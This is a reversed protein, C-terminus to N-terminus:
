PGTVSRYFRMPYNTADHDVFNFDSPPPTNTFIGTWTVLNTSAQIILPVGLTNTGSIDFGGSGGGVYAGLLQVPQTIIVIATTTASAVNDDPNGDPTTTNVIASNVIDGASAAQLVVAMTAGTGSLLTGVDWDLESASPSTSGQSVSSTVFGANFPLSDAVSVNSATSPGYNTVTINFTVDNGVAVLNTSVTMAIGADATQGIVNATVLTVLWGNSIAGNDAAETDVVFLSWKGNPDAGSLNSLTTGFPPSPPPIHTIPNITGALAIILNTGNPTGLGTCLDYNTAASFLTPSSAWENNGVTTDHFYTNYAPTAALAYLAPNIFGVAARGNAAAQQNVLALFGGWLPAACSTGVVQYFVGGDAVVFVQDAAMAVDPINRTTASGGVAVMNINSQWYPIGYFSSYGGSSGLGSGLNWVQEAAYSAGSGNMSLTTGGVQTINPSSSPSGPFGPNDVQGPLFADSDGSANFFTQGQLAMQVFIQETTGNPGGTWGWSCSIQRASNDNAIQNLVDNEHFNFPNGEYVVIQSLAPAMSVLMEIDLSVEVEGGTFTPSGSFGDILINTMPINTRNAMLAYTAIDSAFYGDFEVLAVSQGSGNQPAGPTYAHRFDDGIYLGAVGSGIRPSVSGAHVAVGNPEAAVPKQHFHTLPRRYNDLGSVDLMPVLDPVIPETDPSYFKRNETPHQYMKLTVSFAKEVDAARGVVDLVMRNPHIGEVKLGHKQAFDVLAQYDAESPGFMATFKAPSLFKHYGPSQPNYMDLLMQNMQAQNHVPLGISLHLLNTSALRGTSRLGPVVDPVHHGHLAAQSTSVIAGSVALGVALVSLRKCILNTM